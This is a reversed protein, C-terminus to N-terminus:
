YLRGQIEKHIFCLYDVYSSSGVSRDEILRVFFSTESPLGAKAIVIRGKTSQNKNIEILIESIRKGEKTELDLNLKTMPGIDDWADVGFITKLLESSVKKGIWIYITQTDNLLYIGDQHTKSASLNIPRPLCYLSRDMDMWPETMDHLPYLNPYCYTVTNSCPIRSLYNFASIRIDIPIDTGAKFAPTKLLGLFYVPLLKLSDPLILQGQGPNDNREQREKRYMTLIGIATESVFRKVIDRSDRNITILDCALRSLGSLHADMDASRFMAPVTNCIPLRITHVRILREGLSSTYLIAVQFFVVNSKGLDSDYKFEVFFTTDSDIGPLDVNDTGTTSFPGSYKKVSLGTSCRVRMLADYAKERTVSRGLDFSLREGDLKDNYKYYTYIQGCTRNSVYGITSSEIFKQPFLFMDCSIQSKALLDAFKKWHGDQAGFLEREKETGYIKFDPRVEIKGKGINPAQTTFTIIKGGGMLLRQAVELAAGLACGPEYETNVLPLIRKLYEPVQAAPVLIRKPPLPLYPDDVDGMVVLDPQGKYNYFQISKNFTIFGYSCGEQLKLNSITNFIEEVPALSDIVFVYDLPAPPKDCYEKTAVLDVSGIRLEPQENRMLYWEPIENGFGCFNCTYSRGQMAFTVFPNVYARCRNCRLPGGKLEVKPVYNPSDNQDLEAFPRVVAGFLLKSQKMVKQSQAVQSCTPRYFRVSCNGDDCYVNYRSNSSPPPLQKSTQHVVKMYCDESAVVPSPIQQPDIKQPKTTTTPSSTNQPTFTSKIKPQFTPNNNMQEGQTPQYTPKTPILSSDQVFSTTTTKLHELEGTSLPPPGTTSPPPPGTTRIENPNFFNTTGSTTPNYYGLNDQQQTQTQQTTNGFSGTNGQQQNPNFFGGQQQNQGQNPNFFGGQNIGGQQQENINGFSGTTQQNPNFFGQQQTQQVQNSNNFDTGQQVVGQQQNPNFFGQQTQQNGQENPNNTFNTQENPNYFTDVNGQQQQNPNYFGQQNTNDVQQNNNNM